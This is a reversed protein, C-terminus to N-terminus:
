KEMGPLTAPSIDNIRPYLLSYELGPHRSGYRAPIDQTWDSPITLCFLLLLTFIIKQWWFGDGPLVKGPTAAVSEPSRKIRHSQWYFWITLLLGFAAMSINIVQGTGIGFSEVRYERFLDIFIRLFAYWFIFQAFVVGRPPYRRAIWFLLPILLLNKLGDYLVVPHRYGELDPFQVAWWVNTISGSIQGDIFNGIRGVGMIWAAPIVLEDAIGLFSRRYHWCFLLTGLAGGLLLGHTAMGGLWYAPIYSLHHSYYQWEYFAVEVIRGGLLVGVALYLSMSYVEGLTMGLRKRARRFWIHVGLFGLTYSLGYWWLYIGGAEAIVPDIQHIFPGPM